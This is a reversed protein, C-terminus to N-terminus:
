AQIFLERLTVVQVLFINTLVAFSLHKHVCCRRIDGCDCQKAGNKPADWMVPVNAPIVAFLRTKQSDHFCPYKKSALGV